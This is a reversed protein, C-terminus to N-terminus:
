RGSASPRVPSHPSRGRLGRLADYLATTPVRGGIWKRIVKGTPSVLVYSPVGPIGFAGFIQPADAVIPYSVGNDRLFERVRGSPEGSVGVVEVGRRSLERYLANLSPVQEVCARCRSNWFVLLTTRGKLHLTEGEVTILTLYPAEPYEVTSGPDEVGMEGLRSLASTDGYIVWLYALAKVYSSSDGSYLAAWTFDYLYPGLLSPDTRFVPLLLRFLGDWDGVSTYYEVAYPYSPGILSALTDPPYLRGWTLVDLAMRVPEEMRKLTDLTLRMGVTDGRMAYLRFLTAYDHFTRMSDPIRKLYLRVYKEPEWREREAKERVYLRVTPHLYLRGVGTSEPRLDPLRTPDYRLKGSPLVEVAVGDWTGGGGKLVRVRLSLPKGSYRGVVSVTAGGGAGCGYLLLLFPLLRKIM